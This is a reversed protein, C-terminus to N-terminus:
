DDDVPITVVLAWDPVSAGPDAGAAPNAEAGILGVVVRAAPERDPWPTYGDTLVVLLSPRPRLAMAAVFGNRLDTGGGGILEVRQAVADGLKEVSVDNMLVTLSDRRVGVSRLAVQVEGWAADLMPDSMSASTDIIVAISPVPQTMAPLVVGPVRRRSPRRYSHDVMGVVESVASRVTGRLLSRWDLTPELTAEAWRLWGGAVTGAGASRERIAVAVRRRILLQEGPSVGAVGDLGIVEEDHSTPTEGHCGTGCRPTDDGLDLDSGLNRHYYEAVRGAPLRLLAPTVPTGPLSVGDRLLDDNIEADAALNWRVPDVVGATVARGAHDRVVHGVEHLLVGAVETVSWAALVDPDISLRWRTDVGFTGLGPAAVPSLAHLAAALFPQRETAALRAAALKRHDLPM